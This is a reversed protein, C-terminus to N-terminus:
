KKKFLGKLGEKAKDAAQKAKDAAEKAADPSKIPDAIAKKIEEKATNAVQTKIAKVTDKVVSKVSDIKREVEKKIEEKVSNVADGAVNKLNTEIVPKTMTGTIGVTLNVKDGLKIPIGKSTAQSLLNNVMNNGATGLLSRPVAMNVGYKMTQDFGHSGGVEGEIEGLKIKYPQVSLRGNEFTFFMKSDSMAIRKFQTLHLKDALQETVPFGSLVGSLMMLDGKGTLTNIVPSMDPGLKGTMTLNSSVKGSVYKAMPVMKQLTAFTNYTKQVDVAEVRYDFAIDPNKKDTKTNYAGSMKLNGDLGKGSVNQLTVVQNRISLDCRVGTLLINDYKLSGTSAHLEIDLNSPVQYPETAPPTATTTATTAPTGMFKNVDIKDAIFNFTGNLSENHLYYGLLNNIAGDGSFITGLYQGRLGSVTVNKPNFTLLLNYIVVPDPYEKSAYTINNLGVTGSADLKEFQKKQAAAISGKVSVNADVIGALKTGAEMKMFKQMQTLDIRGKASADIWQDSVPTKLLMRFDFPQTGLDVHCKELNVVTHDTIGDPNNVGLKIQINSVKQPLDPYQFSGDQIGLNFQYSPIQTKNYTGKVFGGLTAKGTTKIDKFNSQYIGPVLSLIDKFDNSPTSFQIDMVMNNTDPMQVFGKTSLRLGNLQIKETNFSYKSTKNNIDLDLDIATRVKSLYPINGNVFTIADATTETALTFQDSTFDGSGSHDLNEITVHMKGQEDNYDIFANELSYKRLKLAFPQTEASTATAPEPKTINWNATGNELVRAHIRPSVLGIKIIDYVGNIAKMLDLSVDISKAAVLTDNKFIDKGVISLETISVSLRPFSHILSIDVDKFDTTAILKENMEKKVLAMIKDKFFVPITIATAIFLLLIIGIAIFFRKILKM